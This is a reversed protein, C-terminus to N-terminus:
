HAISPFSRKFEFIAQKDVIYYM